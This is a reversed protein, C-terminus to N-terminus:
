TSAAAAGPSASHNSAAEGAWHADLWAAKAVLPDEVPPAAAVARDPPGADGARADFPTEARDVVPDPAAPGPGPPPAPGPRPTDSSGPDAGPAPAAAAAIRSDSSGAAGDEVVAPVAFAASPILHRLARRAAALAAVLLALPAGAAVLLGALQVLLWWALAVGAGLAGAEIAIACAVVAAAWALARRAPTSPRRGLLWLLVARAFRAFLHTVFDEQVFLALRSALRATALGPALSV